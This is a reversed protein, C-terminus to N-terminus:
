PPPSSTRIKVEAGRVFGMSEASGMNVAIEAYGESNEILAPAGPPVDGFTRARVLHIERGNVEAVLHTGLPFPLLSARLNLAANGFSDVYIVTARVEHADVRPEPIDLRTLKGVDVAPWTDPIGQDRAIEAAAPAFVDRGHFTASADPPVPIEWAEEANIFTIVGNDPCVIYRESARVAVARRETGVGPDVVVLFVTGSPFHPLSAALVYAASLVDHRPIGHTIDVVPVDPAITAIAGKMAGAYHDRYGFDTIIAIM